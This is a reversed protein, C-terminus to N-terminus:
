LRIFPTRQRTVSGRAPRAQPLPPALDPVPPAQRLSALVMDLSRRPRRGAHASRGSAPMRYPADPQAQPPPPPPSRVPSYPSPSPPPPPPAPAAAVVSAYSPPTDIDVGTADADADGAALSSTLSIQDASHRRRITRRSFPTPPPPAGEQASAAAAAVVTAAGVSPSSPSSSAQFTTTSSSSAPLNTSSPLSTNPQGPRDRIVLSALSSNEPANAMPSGRLSLARLLIGSREAQLRDTAGHLLSAFRRLAARSREEDERLILETGRMKRILPQLSEATAQAPAKWRDFCGPSLLDLGELRPMAEILDSASRFSAEAPQLSSSSRGPNYATAHSVSDTLHALVSRLCSRAQGLNSVIVECKQLRTRLDAVQGRLRAESPFYEAAPAFLRECLEDMRARIHQLQRGRADADALQERVRAEEEELARLRTRGAPVDFSSAAPAPAPPDDYGIFPLWAGRRTDRLTAPPGQTHYEIENRLGRIEVGVAELSRVLNRRARSSLAGGTAGGGRTAGSGSPPLLATPGVAAAATGTEGSLIRDRSELLRFFDAAAVRLDRSLVSPLAELRPHDPYLSAPAPADPRFVSKTTDTAEYTPPPAAATSSTSTSPFSLGLPVDDSADYNAPVDVSDTLSPDAAGLRLTSTM